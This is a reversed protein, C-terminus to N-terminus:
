VARLFLSPCVIFTGGTILINRSNVFIGSGGSDQVQRNDAFLWSCFLKFFSSSVTIKQESSDTAPDNVTPPAELGLGPGSASGPQKPVVSITPGAVPSLTYAKTPAHDAGVM